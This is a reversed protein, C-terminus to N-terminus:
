RGSRAPGWNPPPLDGAPGTPWCFRWVRSSTSSLTGCYAGTRRQVHCCQPCHILMKGWLNQTTICSWLIWVCMFLLNLSKYARIPLKQPVCPLPSPGQLDHSEWTGSHIRRGRTGGLCFGLGRHLFNAQYWEVLLSWFQQAWFHAVIPWKVKVWWNLLCSNFSLFPLINIHVCKSSPLSSCHCM